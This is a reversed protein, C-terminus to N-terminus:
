PPPSRASARASDPSSGPQEGYHDGDGDGDDKHGRGHQGPHLRPRRRAPDRRPRGLVRAPRVAGRPSTSTTRRSSTSASTPSGPRSTPPSGPSAPPPRRTRPRPTRLAQHVSMPGVRDRRTAPRPSGLRPLAARRTGVAGAARARGPARRGPRDGGVAPRRHPHTRRRAAWVSCLCCCYSCTAFAGSDSNLPESVRRGLPRRTRKFHSSQWRATM